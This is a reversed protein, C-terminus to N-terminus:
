RRGLRREGSTGPQYKMEYHAFIKPELTADLEGDTDISPAAKAHKKDVLVRVQKPSVKAGELPVFILKGGGPLGVKVSAFSPADTATDFYVAELSGIKSGERDVVSQGRWERIDEVELMM